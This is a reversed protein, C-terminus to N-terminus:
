LLPSLLRAGAQGLRTRFRLRSVDEIRLARAHGLDREFDAALAANSAHDYLVAAIEFNLRFSRNDLNATGVIAVDDDFVSVKAHVFRPLYEYIKVGATLLDLFYSRAAADVLRSDSRAPVLLRVDVGRLAATTLGMLFAEDPVFYPTTLWLRHQAQGCATFLMRQIGYEAGDPGSGVVQVIKTGPEDVEPFLERDVEPIERAAYGWDELFIRQMARIAPGAIRVHTDRWYTAGFEESHNDAINMGGTFGIVGDCVLLKRHTRMDLRQHRRVRPLRVPNFWAVQVGAARAPALWGRQKLGRAGAGDVLMRVTVGARAREILADRIRTGIQDPEWIYYELHIHHRAGAIAELMAGYASRGDAYLDISTAPLPEVQGSGIGVMALQAQEQSTHALHAMTAMAQEVARRSRTRRSRRRELRVPGILWYVILGIVPLLAMGLLWALTATPSRRQMVIIVGVILVWAVEALTLVLWLDM